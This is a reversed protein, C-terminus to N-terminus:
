LSLIFEDWQAPNGKQGFVKQFLRSRSSTITQKARNTLQAIAAPQLGLRLLLCIRLEQTSFSYFEQLRELFEPQLEAMTDELAHWDEDTLAQQRSNSLLRRIHRVIPADSLQRHQDSATDGRSRFDALLQELQRVKMKYKLRRRSFYLLVAVLMMLVVAVMTVSLIVRRELRANEQERLTYNYLASVRRLAETDTEEMLTDTLEEYRKLHHAAEAVRGESLLLEALWKHGMQRHGTEEEQLLLLCYHHASDTPGTNRYLDAAMFCLGGVPQGQALLPQLLQRAKEYDAHWLHYGAMQGHVEAILTSDRLQSALMLAQSFYYLCSDDDERTRYMNAIDISSIAMGVTDGLNENAEYAKLYASLAQEQLGEEFLLSGMDNFAAVRLSDDAALSAAEKLSALAQPADGDAIDQRAREYAARGDETTCGVFLVTMALLQFLKRMKEIM